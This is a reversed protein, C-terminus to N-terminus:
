ARADHRVREVHHLGLRRPRSLLRLFDVARVDVEPRDRLPLAVTGSPPADPRDRAAREQREAICFAATIAPTLRAPRTARAIAAGAACCAGGCAAGALGGSPGHPGVRSSTTVPM